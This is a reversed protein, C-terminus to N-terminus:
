RRQLRNTDTHEFPGGYIDVMTTEHYYLEDGQVELRHTFSLTRANDRMFPAECIPWDPSDAAADVQIITTSGDLTATGGAIVAVGRPITFTQMVQQADADWTLYGSENHFEKDNRKRSVVQHYRVIALEQSDANDVDGAAEFIITEYFPNNDPGDAEPAVDMGKDGFWEGILIVLPGYDVGDIISGESM